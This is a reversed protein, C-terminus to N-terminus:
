EDGEADAGTDDGTDEADELLADLVDPEADESYTPTDDM